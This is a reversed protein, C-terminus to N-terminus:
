EGGNGLFAGIAAAQPGLARPLERVTARQMQAAAELTGLRCYDGDTAALLLPQSLVAARAATPHSLVAQVTMHATDLHKAWGLAELTLQAPDIEPEDDLTAAEREDFWPFFLRRNRLSHWLSILHTGDWRPALAEAYQAPETGAATSELGNLVIRRIRGPAAHAMEVAVASGGRQGLLDVQQLGLADMAELMARAIAAITFAGAPATSDGTGPADIAFVRRTRALQRLLPLMEKGSGPVPPVVVLPIGAETGGQRVMVQGETGAVVRRTLGLPLMGTEPLPPAPPADNHRRLLAIEQALGAARERPMTEIRCCGPLAPLLALAHCLSDDAYALFYLPVQMGAIPQESRYRFAAAYVKRYENGVELLELVGAHLERPSPVDCTARTVRAPINWPWFLYQERYRYWLWLLHAGDWSPACSPFYTATRRAREDPTYLPYGETLTVTARQPWYRAFHVAILAGTHSGYLATREIGLADLTEALAAAQDAIEPEPPDLPDSQGLGPIDVAIARFGAAGYAATQLDLVRSSTPSPHILVVPPGDGATRYRVQRPGVTVFGDRVPLTAPDAM